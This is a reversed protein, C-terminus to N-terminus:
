RALLGLKERVRNLTNAGIARAKDAGAKLRADVEPLNQMYYQFLERERAFKRIILEYLAQKAHGYGYNGNLYNQRMAAVEQDSALLAYLKFTTDTAPDKPEELTKSDSIISKINKKLDKDPAFIDIINGYSKSMKEGNIGPVTMVSEDIRGEPIV